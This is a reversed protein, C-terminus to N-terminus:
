CRHSRFFFLPPHCPFDETDVFFNGSLSASFSILCFLFSEVCSEATPPMALASQMPWAPVLYSSAATEISAENNLPVAYPKFKAPFEPKSAPPLL